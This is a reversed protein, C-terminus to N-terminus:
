EWKKDELLAKTCWFADEWWELPPKEPVTWEGRNLWAKQTQQQRPYQKALFRLIPVSDFRYILPKAM